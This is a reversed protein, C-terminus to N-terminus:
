RTGSPETQASVHLGVLRAVVFTLYVQGVLAELVALSKALPALPTVDGYGLTTLTTLSFYLLENIHFTTEFSSTFKFSGPAALELVGFLMSWLMGLALYVVIAVLLLETTVSRDAFLKRTFNIIVMLFFFATGVFVVAVSSRSESNLSVLIGGVVPASVGTFFLLGRTDHSMGIICFVVSALILANRFLYFNQFISPPVAILLLLSAIIGWLAYLPPTGDKGFVWELPPKNATTGM